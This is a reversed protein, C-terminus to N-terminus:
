VNQKLLQIAKQIDVDEVLHAPTWPIYIDPLIGVNTMGEGKDIRTLRSTPYWLEFTDKWKMGVLNSYDNLGATPRGIVTVKASTKCLEVFSDGASGCTVDTLVIVQKPSAKGKFIVQEAVESFDFPVFGKGRHKEWGNRFVRLVKQMNPDKVSKLIEDLEKVALQYNRETCNFLMRSESKDSLNVFREEFLYPLLSFYASDSGGRNVRVDIILQQSQDLEEVHDKILQNIADPNTFDTLTMLLLDDQLKELTYKPVYPEIEYRKLKFTRHNGNRDEVECTHFQPLIKRWKEREHHHEFLARQHLQALEPISKDDLSIIREGVKVRKEKGVHTIFLHDGYRRVQFGCDYRKQKHSNVLQFYMHPDKFDLLYDQVIEVFQEPTLSDIEELRKIKEAYKNPDDWGKKDLCGAYDNHMISVIEEFIASYM